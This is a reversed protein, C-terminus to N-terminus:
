FGHPVSRASAAAPVLLALLLAPLALRVVM